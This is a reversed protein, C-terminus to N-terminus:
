KGFPCAPFRCESCKMCLGGHGLEALEKRGITEGALIRPLVLDFVTTPAHLACAPVGLIPIPPRGGGCEVLASLFMSGPSVASGYTMDKVGLNRIAFRTVDDPDVSMGGTTILLDAGAHILGRLEEEIMAENDPAFRVGAIAGDYAKIKGTIVGAFADKIRGYYVENGTILIGAKPKRLERVSLIKGAAESIRAAAKVTERAIILPIARTDAVGQGKSVFTNDHLTACAVDGLMNFALLADRNVRLLGDVEAVMTVKGERPEAQMAVGKGMLARALAVAADNEHMQSDPIKLVFLNDKGLRQLHCIDSDCVVHGKRFAAGRSEGPRVETIDHALMTGVAETVPIKRLVTSTEGITGRVGNM